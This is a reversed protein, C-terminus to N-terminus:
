EDYNHRQLHKTMTTSLYFEVVAYFLFSQAFIKALRCFIKYGSTYANDPNPIVSMTEIISNRCIPCKHQKNFWIDLCKKHIWGDCSCKKNNKIITKLRITHCETETSLEYCIFCEDPINYDNYNIQSDDYHEYIQFFM